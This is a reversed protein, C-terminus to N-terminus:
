VRVQASPTPAVTVRAAAPRTEYVAWALRTLALAGLLLGFDRLAIDYYKPPDNTLLNIVIGLLWASVLPAGFRPMIAVALGAIIEIVGVAYMFDQGSGPVIDNVWPALYSPWEVSSNFFKDIGFLIPAATFGIRLVDYVQRGAQSM